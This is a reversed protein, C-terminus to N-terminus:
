DTPLVYIKDSECLEGLHYGRMACIRQVQSLNAAFERLTLTQKGGSFYSWMEDTVEDVGYFKMIKEFGARDIPRNNGFVSRWVDAFNQKRTFIGFRMRSTDSPNKGTGVALLSRILAEDGQMQYTPIPAPEVPRLGPVQGSGVTRTTTGEVGSM